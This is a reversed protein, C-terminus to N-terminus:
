TMTESKVKIGEAQLMDEFGERTIESTGIFVGTLDVRLNGYSGTYVSLTVGSCRLTQLFM